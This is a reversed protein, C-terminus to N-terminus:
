TPLSRCWYVDTLYPFEIPERGRTAPDTGLLSRVQDLVIERAPQPLAAIFSISAVRDVISERTTSHTHPFRASELPSFSRAEEFARRWEMSRYRPVGEEHPDIIESLKQVWAVSEDRMNWLLGLSGGPRLVRHIEALTAPGAFWHFAQGAIVADASTAELTTAEAVADIVAVHPLQESLKKRMAEVPEVAILQAGTALLLRTLKGTGAGVEVLRSQPGIEL